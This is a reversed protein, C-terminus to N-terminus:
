DSGLRCVRIWISNYSNIMKNISFKEKIRLRAQNCRKYWKKTGIEEIAVEIKRALKNSNEPPAVWGTKGVIYSSDGVDTVVCPTKQVMAEAVVNPFGESISSQIHIDLSSMIKPVNKIPGILKINKTLKLKRIQNILLKNKYINNGILLCFFNINKSQVLSLANLLNIHDKLPDYRAVYGVLPTNKKINNLKKFENNKFSKLDYGNPIYKLKKKDYGKKEYFSVAKKSVVVISKPLTYSLKVLLRIIIFNFFKVKKIEINSYRINWIINKIGAFRAAISGIFDAIILWTQVIDPKILRLIKILFILKYISFFNLNLCYVKIGLRKLLSYYKGRGKLSIVIHKNLCDYKCIKYLTHEAGGDGLGTIIHVIKM